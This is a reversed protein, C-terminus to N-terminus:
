ALAQRSALHQKRNTQDGREDLLNPAQLTVAAQLDDAHPRAARRTNSTRRLASVYSLESYIWGPNKLLV